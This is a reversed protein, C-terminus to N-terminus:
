LMQRLNPEDRIIIRGKESIILGRQELASMNLSVTERAVGILDALETRSLPVNIVIGDQTQVGYREGLKLLLYALRQKAGKHSAEFLRDRLEQVEEALKALVAASLAPYKALLQEFDRHDVFGIQTPELAEAYAQYQRNQALASIGLIDGPGLIEFTFRKGSTTRRALKVKGKCIIYYGYLPADEKLITEGTEYDLVRTFEEPRFSFEQRSLDLLVCRGDLECYLCRDVEAM